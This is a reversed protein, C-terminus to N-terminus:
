KISPYAWTIQWRSLPLRLGAIFAVEYFGVEHSCGTYCKEGKTGKRMPVNNPIQFRPKLRGYVDKTMSMLFDNVSWIDPFIIKRSSQGSPNIEDEKMPSNALPERESIFLKDSVYERGSFYSEENGLEMRAFVFCESAARSNKSM